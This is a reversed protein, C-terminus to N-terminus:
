EAAPLPGTRLFGYTDGRGLYIVRQDLGARLVASRFEDLPSAFMDYDDVHVPIARQAGLRQLLRAGDRGDMSIRVGRLMRAGGLHLLALDIGPFRQAVQELEDYLVTDGSVYIRYAGGARSDEFDLLAGMVSPMLLAFGAPGHRAPLATIRLRAGGKRVTISDWRGLAYRQTFGMRQLGEGAEPNTVIPIDRRLMRQVLPDFHDEHLHTLLVLDVPPLADFGIAPGALRRSGLGFGLSVKQGRDIFNPDTLITFGQYRILVTANGIFQITAAEGGAIPAPPLTLTYNDPRPAVAAEDQGRARGPVAGCTMALLLCCTPLWARM